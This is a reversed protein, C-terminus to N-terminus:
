HVQARPGGGGRHGAFGVPHPLRNSGGAGKPQPYCDEGESGRFGGTRPAPLPTKGRRPHKSHVGCGAAPGERIPSASQQTHSELQHCYREPRRAGEGRPTSGVRKNRRPTERPDRYQPTECYPRQKTLPPVGRAPRRRSPAWVRTGGAMGLPTGGGRRLLRGYRQLEPVSTPQAVVRGERRQHSERLEPSLGHM